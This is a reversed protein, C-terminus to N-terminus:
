YKVLFELLNSMDEPLKSKFEMYKKTSPHIFGLIHAHLAQRSFNKLLLFRKYYTNNKSYKNAKNKGYIKDGIIPNKIHNMHVRIQHTRGTKLSCEILSCIDFNKKLHISTESYKGRSDNFSMKKRNIKNREIYGKITQNRPTGWVIAYYKRTITHNKFQVALNRHALNNKAIVLIGSTDKDIRHVIGPRNLENINSLNNKSHYLLANVLTNSSKGPAPHTIMGSKKNVVILDNDEFIIDIPINEPEYTNEKYNSVIITFKEGSTVKYSVDDIIQNTKKVKKNLLLIKIFSRSYKKLYYTLAQDLRKKDQSEDITVTHTESNQM